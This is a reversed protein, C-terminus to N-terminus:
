GAFPMLITKVTPSAARRSRFPTFRLQTAAHCDKAKLTIIVEAVRNGERDLHYAVYGNKADGPFRVLDNDELFTLYDLIVAYSKEAGLFTMRRTLVGFNTQTDDLRYAYRHSGLEVDGDEPLARRAEVQEGAFYLDPLVVSMCTERRGNTWIEAEFPIGDYTFDQTYGKNKETLGAVHNCVPAEYQRAASPDMVVDDFLDEYEDFDCSEYGGAATYQSRM